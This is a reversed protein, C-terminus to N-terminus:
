GSVRGLVAILMTVTMASSAKHHSAVLRPQSGGSNRGDGSAIM